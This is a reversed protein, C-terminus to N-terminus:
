FLIRIKNNLLTKIQRSLTLIASVSFLTMVIINWLLYTDVIKPKHETIQFSQLGLCYITEIIIIEIVSIVKWFIIILVSIKDGLYFCFNKNGCDTMDQTVGTWMGWDFSLWSVLHSTPKVHFKESLSGLEPSYEGSEEHDISEATDLKLRM